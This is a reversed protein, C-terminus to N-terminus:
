AMRAQLCNSYQDLAQSEVEGFFEILQWASEGKRAAEQADLLSQFANRLNDVGFQKTVDAFTSVEEFSPISTSGELHHIYKEATSEQVDQLFYRLSKGLEPMVPSGNAVPRLSAMVRRASLALSLYRSGSESAHAM